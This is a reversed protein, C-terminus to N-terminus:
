HFEVSRVIKTIMEITEDSINPSASLLKVYVLQDGNTAYTILSGVIVDSDNGSTITAITYAPTYPADLKGEGYFRIIGKSNDNELFIIKLNEIQTEYDQGSYSGGANFTLAEVATNILVFNTNEAYIEWELPYAFTIGSSIIQYTKWGDPIVAQPIPTVPIPTPTAVAFVEKTVEVVRTVEVERTVEVVSTVEVERTVVIEKVAEESSGCATVILVLAGLLILRRM